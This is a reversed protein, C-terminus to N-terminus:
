IGIEPSSKELTKSQVQNDIEVGLLSYRRKLVNFFDLEDKSFVDKAKPLVVLRKVHKNEALYHDIPAYEPEFLVLLGNNRKRESFLDTGHKAIASFPDLYVLTQPKHGKTQHFATQPNGKKIKKYKTGDEEFFDLASSADDKSFFRIFGEKSVKVQGSNVLSSASKESVGHFTLLQSVKRVSASHEMENAKPIYFSTYKRKQEGFKDELLLLRPNNNIKSIAQLYSLDHHAAVFEIITGRTKNKSNIWEKDQLIVYPRKKITLEKKENLTTEIKNERCYEIISKNKARRIEQIPIISNSLESDSPQVPGRVGSANTPFAAYDKKELRESLSKRLSLSSSDGDSHGLTTFQQLKNRMENRLEPHKRFLEDNSKFTEELAPKDYKAGLKDGRKGRDKGHYFYTINKKEIQVPINLESLFGAYEAYSTAYKMAFDAKQMTEYLYSKGNFRQIRQAIEPMNQERQKKPRETVSLGKEICIQDSIERLKHLHKFKNHIRKGNEFNITNVVIHNHLHSDHTHTIVVFQHGEWYSEALKKGMENVEEKTLKKSEDPSWSQIVHVAQYEKPDANFAERVAAFNESAAKEDPSCLNSSVADGEKQHAFAYQLLNGVNKRFLVKVYAM